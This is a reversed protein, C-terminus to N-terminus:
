YVSIFVSLSIDFDCINMKDFIPYPNLQGSHKLVSIEFFPDPKTLRILASKNIDDILRDTLEVASLKIKENGNESKKM